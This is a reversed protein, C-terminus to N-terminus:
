CGEGMQEFANYEWEWSPLCVSCIGCAIIIVVPFIRMSLSIPALCNGHYSIKDVILFDLLTCGAAKFFYLSCVWSVTYRTLKKRMGHHLWCLNTFDASVQLNFDLSLWCFVTYVPQAMANLNSTLNLLPFLHYQFQGPALIDQTRAFFTCM